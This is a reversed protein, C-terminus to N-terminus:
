QYEKKIYAYTSKYHMKGKLLETCKRQVAKQFALMMGFTVQHTKDGEWVLEQQFLEEESLNNLCPVIVNNTSGMSYETSYIETSNDNMDLVVRLATKTDLWSTYFMHKNQIGMVMYHVIFRSQNM